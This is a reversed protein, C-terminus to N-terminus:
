DSMYEKPLMNYQVIGESTYYPLNRATARGVARRVFLACSQHYLQGVGVYDRCYGDKGAKTLEKVAKKKKSASSSWLFRSKAVAINICLQRSPM